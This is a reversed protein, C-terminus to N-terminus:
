YHVNVLTGYSAWDYLWKADNLSLNVCGHSMPQGFNNHWYAGHLAFDGYFYQVHPVNPTVYDFGLRTGDMTQSELRYYIRFQGTVTYNPALGSSIATVMIPTQGTYATLTQTTLNVDIWQEQPGVSPWTLNAYNDVVATPVLTPTPTPTHTPLPTPTWGAAVVKSAAINKPQLAPTTPTATPLPTQTPGTTPTPEPTDVPGLAIPQVETEPALDQQPIPSQDAVEPVAPQSRPWFVFAIVLSAIVLGALSGLWFLRRGATKGNKERTPLSTAAQEEPKSGPPAVAKKAPIADTPRVGMKEPAAAPNPHNPVPTQPRMPEPKRLNLTQRLKAIAPHGPALTEAKAVCVAKQNEPAILALLLWIRFDRPHQALLTKLRAAAEARRNERIAAQIDRLDESLRGSLNM